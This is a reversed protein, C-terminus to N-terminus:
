KCLLGGTVPILNQLFGRILLANASLQLCLDLNLLSLLPLSASTPTMLVSTLGSVVPTSALAFSIFVPVSSM